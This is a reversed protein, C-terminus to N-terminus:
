ARSRPEIPKVRELVDIQASLKTLFVDSGKFTPQKCGMFLLNLPFGYDFPYAAEIEDLEEQSLKLSLAAINGKIHELRRGGVIPFVNPAKHM